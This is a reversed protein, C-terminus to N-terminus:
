FSFSIFNVLTGATTNSQSWLTVRHNAYESIYINYNSDIFMSYSLGIKDYTAGCGHDGAVSFGLPDGPTWRLVRCNTADLIYM